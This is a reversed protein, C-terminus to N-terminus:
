PAALDAISRALEVRTREFVTTPDRASGHGAVVVRPALRELVGLSEPWALPDADALNGAGSGEERGNVMCGGFLLGRDAFWVVVNDPSHAAGPFLVQVREGLDLRLGEDAAFTRSPPVARYSAFRTALEPRDSLWAALQERMAHARDVALAATHTSGYIPVNRQWLAANGGLADPHFHTNIALKPADGFRADIWDLLSATAEETYPTDVIVITGDHAELVLSNAPWPEEHTVVWVGPEIREIALERDLDFREREERGGFRVELAHLQAADWAWASDALREDIRYLWSLGIPGVYRDERAYLPDALAESLRVFRAGEHSLAALVDGLHDAALANAHLLLVQPAGPHGGQDALARYHRYSRVVHQVYARGIADRREADGEAGLYPAVLAWDSTDVTVPARTVGMAALTAFAADRRARDAGTQLFPYRFFPVNRGSAEEIRRQCSAIDERWAELGLDDLARHATSHNGLEIPAALWRALAAPEADARSCTIFGAIPAGHADAAELIREVALTTDGRPWAGGVWPLDDITIALPADPPRPAPDSPAPATPRAAGCAAVFLALAVRGM